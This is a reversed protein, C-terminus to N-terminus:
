TEAPMARAVCCMQRGAERMWGITIHSDGAPAAVLQRECAILFEIPGNSRRVIVPVSADGRSETLCSLAIAEVVSGYREADPGRCGAYRAAHTALDRLTSAFYADAPVLMNLEFSTADM